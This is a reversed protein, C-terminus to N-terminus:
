GAQRDKRGISGKDKRRDKHRDELSEELSDKHHEKSSGNHRTRPVAM